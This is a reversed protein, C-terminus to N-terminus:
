TNPNDNQDAGENEKQENDQHAYVPPLGGHFDIVLPQKENRKPAEEAASKEERLKQMERATDGKILEFRREALALAKGKMLHGHFTDAIRTMEVAAKADGALASKLRM